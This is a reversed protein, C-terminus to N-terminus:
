QSLKPHDNSQKNNSIEPPNDDSGCQSVTTKALQGTM